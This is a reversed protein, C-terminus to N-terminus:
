LQITIKMLNKNGFVQFGSVNCHDFRTNDFIQFGKLKKM